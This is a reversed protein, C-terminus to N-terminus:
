VGRRLDSLARRLEPRLAAAIRRGARKLWGRYQSKPSYELLRPYPYPVKYRKGRAGPAKPTFAARSGIMLGANDSRKARFKHAFAKASTGKSRGVPAAGRVINEAQSEVEAAASAIAAAFREPDLLKQVKEIGQLQIRIM